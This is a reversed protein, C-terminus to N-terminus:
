TWACSVTRARATSPNCAAGAFTSTPSATVARPNLTFAVEPRRLQGLPLRVSRRAAIAAM